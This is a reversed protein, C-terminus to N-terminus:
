LSWRVPETPRYSCRRGTVIAQQLHTALPPNREAIKRIADRIRATVATRAREGTDDLRRGRGGLGAARTLEDILADREDQWSTRDAETARDLAEDIVALRRQYASRAADDLIPDAGAAPLGALEAASIATGPAALLMAIDGLGKSDPMRVTSGAFTLTWVDGDRRFVAAPRIARIREILPVAGLRQAVDLAQAFHREADRSRGLAQALLGQYYPVPGMVVAAGGIAAVENEYPRLTEYLQRCLDIAGSQVAIEADFAVASLARWRFRARALPPESARLTAAALELKENALAVLARMEPEFEAPAIMGYREELRRAAVAGERALGMLLLQTVRLGFTDPHGIMAGIAEAEDVLAHADEDNGRMIAVMARRSTVYFRQKPLRSRDAIRAMDALAVEFRADGVDLLAIMRCFAAEFALEMDDGAAATM